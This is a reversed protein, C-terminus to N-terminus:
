AAERSAALATQISRNLADLRACAEASSERPASVVPADFAAGCDACQMWEQEVPEGHPEVHASRQPVLASGGCHDCTM